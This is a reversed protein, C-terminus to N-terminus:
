ADLDGQWGEGGVRSSFRFHRSWHVEGDTEILVETLPVIPLRAVVGDREVVVAPDVKEATLPSLHLEGADDLCVPGDPDALLAELDDLYRAMETEIENLREAFTAPKGTLKLLEARNRKWAEPAILYSAPNAYRRSGGVWIEGSRGTLFM